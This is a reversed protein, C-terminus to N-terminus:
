LKPCLGLSVGRFGVAVTGFSFREVGALGALFLPPDLYAWAGM